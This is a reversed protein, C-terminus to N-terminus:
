PVLYLLEESDAAPSEGLTSQSGVEVMHSTSLRESDRSPLPRGRRGTVSCIDRLRICLVPASNFLSTMQQAMEVVVCSRGTMVMNFVTGPRIRFGQYLYLIISVM